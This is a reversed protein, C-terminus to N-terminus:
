FKIILALLIAVAAATILAMTAATALRDLTRRTLQAPTLAGPHTPAHRNNM